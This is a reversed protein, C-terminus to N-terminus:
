GTLWGQWASPRTRVETHTARGSLRGSGPLQNFGDALAAVSADFNNMAATMQASHSGGDFLPLALAAPELPGLILPLRIDWQKYESRDCNSKKHLASM